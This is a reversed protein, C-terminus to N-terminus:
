GRCDCHRCGRCGRRGRSRRLRGALVLHGFPTVQGATLVVEHVVDEDCDHIRATVREIPDLYAGLTHHLAVQHVESHASLLPRTLGLESEEGSATEVEEYSLIPLVRGVTVDCGREVACATRVARYPRFLSTVVAVAVGHPVIGIRHGELLVELGLM